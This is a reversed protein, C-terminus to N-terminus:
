SSALKILIQPSLWVSEWKPDREIERGLEQLNSRVQLVRASGVCGLLANDAIM